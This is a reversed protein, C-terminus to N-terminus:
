FNDFSLPDGGDLQFCRPQTLPIKSNRERGGTLRPKFFRNRYKVLDALNRFKLKMM